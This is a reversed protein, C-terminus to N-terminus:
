SRQVSPSGDARSAASVQLMRWWLLGGVGGILAAFGGFAMGSRPGLHDSVVGVIPGGIPTSGLFVVTQLALVRGRM